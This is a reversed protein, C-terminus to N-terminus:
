KGKLKIEFPHPAINFKAAVKLLREVTERPAADEGPVQSGAATVGGTLATLREFILNQIESKEFDIGSVNTFDVLKEIRTLESPDAGVVAKGMRELVEDRILPTIEAFDIPIEAKRATQVMKALVSFDYNEIGEDKARSLENFLTNNMMESFAIRDKEFIRVGLERYLNLIRLYEDIRYDASGMGKHLAALSKASIIGLAKEKVDYKMDSLSYSEAFWDQFDRIMQHPNDKEVIKDLYSLLSDDVIKNVFTKFINGNQFVFAVYGCDDLLVKSHLNVDFRKVIWEGKGFERYGNLTLTFRYYDVGEGQRIERQTLISDLLYQNVVRRRDFIHKKVFNEYIWKGDRYDPINSKANALIELFREETDSPLIDGALEIVRAAYQLDQVTEIGSIENFFWGCSTYMLMGSRLAELIRLVYNLDYDSLRERGHKAAFADIAERRAGRTVNLSEFHSVSANEGGNAASQKTRSVGDECHCDVSATVVDIYDNRAQWPDKLFVSLERYSAEYLRDRLLDLANRLPERWKQNWGPRGGTECGCDRRWRDVGHACSWATGLGENGEKLRVFDSPPYLDLYRAYNTITFKPDTGNESIMRALCMDGFPEHHGYVEGDTAAHILHGEKGPLNCALIAGTLYEVKKLLHQFSLKAALDGYYFFVAIRGSETDLWYPKSPDISNNSVDTWDAGDARRVEKAQTPSLILYRVGQRVLLAAVSDNVATEALWLGESKRGFHKEFHKMGWVVQTLRDEESALPMIVHNYVQAVANGHGGNRGASVRDAEVIKRYAYPDFREIWDLLTPGVNFSLYEYNNIIDRIRGSGDLVRSAANAGYCEKDIRENWDHFPYASVQRDIEDTWPDERPPQYFHGHLILYPMNPM